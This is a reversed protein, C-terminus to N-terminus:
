EGPLLRAWAEFPLWPSGSHVAVSDPGAYLVVPPGAGDIPVAVLGSAIGDTWAQYLLQTGDPSFTVSYPYWTAPGTPGDTRLPPLVLAAPTGPGPEAAGVAVLVVDHEERCPARIGACVRQYVILRGDPSWVPGVGQNVDYGAALAVQGSGDVGSIWLEEPGVACSGGACVGTGAPRGAATREYALRTGDPSWSLRKVGHTHPVTTVRDSTVSYLTIEDNAIALETADPSWKLDTAALGSLRRIHHGELDVLWVEDARDAGPAYARIEAGFAIWRGDPSWTGCPPARLGDLPISVSERIEGDPALDGIVLSAAHYGGGATGWAQGYALRRGDPSFAPCVEAVSGGDTETIQRATMGARVLYIGGQSSTAFAVWGNAIGAVPRPPRGILGAVFAVPTPAPGTETSPAATLAVVPTSTTAPPSPAFAWPKLVGVAIFVVLGVTVAVAGRYRGADVPRSLRVRQEEPPVSM